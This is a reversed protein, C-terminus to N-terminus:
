SLWKDLSDQDMDETGQKFQEAISDIDLYRETIGKIKDTNGKGRLIM